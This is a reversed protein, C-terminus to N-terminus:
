KGLWLTLGTFIITAIALVWTAILMQKNVYAVYLMYFRDREQQSLSASKGYRYKDWKNDVEQKYEEFSM